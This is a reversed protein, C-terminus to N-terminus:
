LVMCNFSFVQINYFRALSSYYFFLQCPKGNFIINIIFNTLKKTKVFIMWNSSHIFDFSTEVIRLVCIMNVQRLVIKYYVIKRKRKEGNKKILVCLFGSGLITQCKHYHLPLSYYQYSHSQSAGVNVHFNLLNQILLSRNFLSLIFLNLILLLYLIHRFSYIYKKSLCQIKDSFVLVLSLNHILSEM